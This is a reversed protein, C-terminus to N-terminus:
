PCFRIPKFFEPRHFDPKNTNIPAWSLYHPDPLGDGCKYFNGKLALTLLDKDEIKLLKLIPLGVTLEWSIDGETLAQPPMSSCIDPFFEPDVFTRHNRDPGYALHVCGCGNIELNYYDSSDEQAFFFEVCSDLHVPGNAECVEAKFSPERVCFHLLLRDVNWGLFVETLPKGPFAQWNVQNLEIHAGETKLNEPDNLRPFLLTTM